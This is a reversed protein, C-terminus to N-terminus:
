HAATRAVLSLTGDNGKIENFILGEIPRICM